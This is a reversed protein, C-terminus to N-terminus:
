KVCNVTVIKLEHGVIDEERGKVASVSALKGNEVYGM